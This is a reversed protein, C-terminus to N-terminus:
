KIKKLNNRVRRLYSITLEKTRRPTLRYFYAVGNVIGVKQDKMKEITSDRLHIICAPIGLARRAAGAYGARRQVLSVTKKSKPKGDKRKYSSSKRKNKKPIYSESSSSSSKTKRKRKM